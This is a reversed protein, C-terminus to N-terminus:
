GTKSLHSGDRRKDEKTPTKPPHYKQYDNMLKVAWMVTGQPQFTGGEFAVRCRDVWLGWLVSFFCVLQSDSAHTSVNNVWHYANCGQYKRPDFGLDAVDWCQWTVMCDRFLHVDTEDIM